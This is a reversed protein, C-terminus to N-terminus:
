PLYIGELEACDYFAHSGIVSLRSCDTFDVKMLSQCHGLLSEAQMTGTSPSMTGRAFYTLRKDRFFLIISGRGLTDASFMARLSPIRSSVNDQITMESKRYNYSAM